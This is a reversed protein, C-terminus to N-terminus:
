SCALAAAAPGPPLVPSPHCLRVYFFIGQAVFSSVLPQVMLIQKEVSPSIYLWSGSKSRRMRLDGMTKKENVSENTTSFGGRAFLELSFATYNNIVEM